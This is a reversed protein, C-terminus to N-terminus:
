DLHKKYIYEPMLENLEKTHRKSDVLKKFSTIVTSSTSFPFLFPLVGHIVGKIGALILISSNAIAFIAHESYTQPSAGSNNLHDKSIQILNM